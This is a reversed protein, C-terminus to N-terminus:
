EPVLQWDNALMDTQSALWPVCKDDVTKMVIYPLADFESGDFLTSHGEPMLLLWMGKGNWGARAVKHGDKLLEIAHGFNLANIPCYSREFVDAPSWSIYGDHNPHNAAGGDTYEVLYGADESNEDTPVEWRRYDCYAGRSMPEAILAKTGLHTAGHRTRLSM